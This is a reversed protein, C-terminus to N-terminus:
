EGGGGKVPRQGGVKSLSSFDHDDMSMLNKAQQMKQMYLESM